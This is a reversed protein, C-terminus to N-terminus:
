LNLSCEREPLCVTMDEIVLLDIRRDWDAPTKMLDAFGGVGGGLRAAVLRQHEKIAVGDCVLVQQVDPLIVYLYIYM